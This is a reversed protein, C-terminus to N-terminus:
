LMRKGRSPQPIAGSGRDAAITEGDIAQIISGAAVNMGAKDLSRGQHGRGSERGPRSVRRRLVRRTRRDCGPEDGDRCLQIWQSLRQARGANRRAVRVDRVEHGRPLYKLYDQKIEDWDVGHMTKTYFTQKTRRWVSEFSARREAAQDQITEGSIGVMDSAAPRISGRSRATLCCTSSSRIRTGSCAAATPTSRSWASRRRTRLTTWLNM